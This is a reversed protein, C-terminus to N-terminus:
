LPGWCQTDGEEEEEFGNTHVQRALGSHVVRCAM